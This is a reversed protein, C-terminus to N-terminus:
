THVAHGCVGVLSGASTVGLVLRPFVCGFNAPGLPDDGILVFGGDRLEPNDRFWALVTRWRGVRQQWEQRIANRRAELQERTFRRETAPDMHLEGDKSDAIQNWGENGEELPAITIGTPPYITDGFAARVVGPTLREPVLGGRNAAVFFPALRSSAESANVELGQCLNGAESALRRCRAVEDPEHNHENPGGPRALRGCSYAVTGPHICSHQWDDRPSVPGCCQMCDRLPALREADIACDGVRQPPAPPASPSSLQPPWRSQNMLIYGLLAGSGGLGLLWLLHRRDFRLLPPKCM